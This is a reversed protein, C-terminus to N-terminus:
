NNDLIRFLFTAGELEHSGGVKKWPVSSYFGFVHDYESKCVAITAGKEDCLEHFKHSNFQHKSGVYLLILQVDDVFLSKTLRMQMHTLFSKNLLPMTKHVRPVHHYYLRKSLQCRM